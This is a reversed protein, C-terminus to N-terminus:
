HNTPTDVIRYDPPPMFLSPDPQTRSLNEMKTTTEGNRPDSHTQLIMLRLEKNSWIESVNTIDRDNGMSGAPYTVTTRRGQVVLGEMTQTGLDETKFQPKLNNAVPVPAQVRPPPADSPVDTRVSKFPARHAIKNATDFVYSYGAIPDSILITTPPAPQGEMFKGPIRDSRSRGASDRYMKVTMTQRTIHTGDALTRVSTTVADASFPENLLEVRGQSPVPQVPQGMASLSLIGAAFVFRIRM